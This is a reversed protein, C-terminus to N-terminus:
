FKTFSELLQGGGKICMKYSRVDTSLFKFLLGAIGGVYPHPLRNKTEKWFWLQRVLNEYTNDLSDSNRGLGARGQGARGLGALGLGRRIGLTIHDAVGPPVAEVEWGSKLVKRVRLSGDAVHVTVM